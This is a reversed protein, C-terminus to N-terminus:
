FSTPWLACSGWRTRTAWWRANPSRRLHGLLANEVEGPSVWMGSVKMMDDARGRYYFYGDADRSFKDGTHVWGDRKTRATLDPIQWYEWFAGGAKVWLNGDEDM